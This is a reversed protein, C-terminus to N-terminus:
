PTASSVPADSGSAPLICRKRKVLARFAPKELLTEARANILKNGIAIDKAWSPVLGWRLLYVQNQGDNIVAPVPQTPAINYRPPYDVGEARIWPFLDTFEALKVLVFRGCM